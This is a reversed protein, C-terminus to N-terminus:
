PTVLAERSLICCVVTLAVGFTPPWFGLTVPSCLLHQSFFDVPVRSLFLDPPLPKLDGDNPLSFSLSM